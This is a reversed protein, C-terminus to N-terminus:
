TEGYKKINPRRRRFRQENVNHILDLIDIPKKVSLLYVLCPREQTEMEIRQNKEPRNLLLNSGQDNPLDVATIRLKESPLHSQNSREMLLGSAVREKQLFELIGHNTRRGVM